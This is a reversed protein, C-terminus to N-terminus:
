LHCVMKETWQILTKRTMTTVIRTAEWLKGSTPNKKRLWRMDHAAVLEEKAAQKLAEAPNAMTLLLGVESKRGDVVMDLWSKYHERSLLQFKEKKLFKPTRAITALQTQFDEFLTLGYNVSIDTEEGVSIWTKKDQKQNSVIFLNFKICTKIPVG